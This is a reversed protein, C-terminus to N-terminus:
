KIEVGIEELSKKLNDIGKFQIAWFGMSKAVEAYEAIDDIYVCEEAKLNLKNLADEFIKQSPKMAKAEYSTTITDFKKIIPAVQIMYDWDWESTNSLLGIKYNKKLKEILEVMGEVPTFKDKSYIEKLEDYSINLGCWRSLEQFFEKSSIGGTEYKKPLGSNVYILDFIEKETKGSIASIKGILVNNNFNCIVNGFDFIIAKIM